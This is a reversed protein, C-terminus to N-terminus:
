LFIPFIMQFTTQNENNSLVNISGNQLQVLKKVLALGLGVGGTERSRDKDIRYFPEFIKDRVEEAIGIGTNTIKIYVSQEKIFSYISIMGNPENYKIANDLLNIFIQNMYEKDALISAKQLKMDLKLEFKRIKGEMRRCIDEIVENIELKEAQAEFSYKELATLNLTKEVMDYLRQTEIGIKNKADEILRPDDNYMKMLDVYAKIVTLPTKFEHTINGIFEKQQKELIRLKEVALKLKEQEQEMNRINKQIQNSMFYIGQNLEKLEDKRNLSTKIGYEGAKIHEIAVKLKLIDEALKNFYLHGIIFSLVFIISGIIIFLRLIDKYFTNYDKLSYCLQVVGVQVGSLHIPALYDLTEGMIQYARNGQLSYALTDLIDGRANLPFSNGVEKEDMTYLITQMNCFNGIQKAIVPGRNKFFEEINMTAETAYAQSIYLNAVDAQQSLLAEYNKQQNDKIGNLVSYSLIGLTFILLLGLFAASKTKISNKM